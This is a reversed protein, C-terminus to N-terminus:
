FLGPARTADPARSRSGAGDGASAVGQNGAATVRRGDSDSFSLGLHWKGVAATAYGKGRLVAPLTLRNPAILPPGGVGNFVSGGRPVRFPMQGTMLGYRTPTCVTSPSHADVFRMGERALRDINPTPVGSEPNYCGVDGYGLDDALILVINPPREDPTRQASAFVACLAAVVAVRSATPM